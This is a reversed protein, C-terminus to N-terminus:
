IYVLIYIVTVSFVFFHYNLLLRVHLLLGMAVWASFATKVEHAYYLFTHM